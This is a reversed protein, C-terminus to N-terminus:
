CGPSNEEALMQVYVTCDKSEEDYDIGVAKVFMLDASIESKFCGATLVLLLLVAAHHCNTTHDEEEEEIRLGRSVLQPM